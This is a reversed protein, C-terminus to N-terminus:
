HGANALAREFKNLHEPSPQVQLNKASWIGEPENPCTTLFGDDARHVVFAKGHPICTAGVVRALKGELNEEHTMDDIAIWRGPGHHM